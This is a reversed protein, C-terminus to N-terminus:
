GLRAGLPTGFRAATAEKLGRPFTRRAERHVALLRRQAGVDGSWAAVCDDPAVNAAALIAGAAGLLGAYATLLVSGTYLAGDWSELTSLFREPEGTSDKMGALPLGALAELPIPGGATGPYHYGLVPVSGAAASVAAYYAGLDAPTRPPAVLVADAGAAVVGAVRAAAPQWWDGSAGSVVPVDPCAAKVATVLQARETDTLTSAEGTSGAVVIAHVGESVLRAAHKATADLDLSGEDDFFTLLAVAVGNWLLTM